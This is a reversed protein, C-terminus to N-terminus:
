MDNEDTCIYRVEGGFTMTMVSGSQQLINLWDSCDGGAGAIAAIEGFSLDGRWKLLTYLESSSSPILDGSELRKAEDDAILPDIARRVADEGFLEGALTRSVSMLQLQTAESLGDGEYIQANVYEWLFQAAFPSPNNTEQVVIDMYGTSIDTLLRKLGNIDLYLHLCERMAEQLYPFHEAYPLSQKLLEESRLRKQWMPTRTFSRSL